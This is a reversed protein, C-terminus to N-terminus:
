QQNRAFWERLLEQRQTPATAPRNDKPDEGHEVSWGSWERFAHYTWDWGRAEFIDIVDRLYRYASQNPAWRIASFEGMYIHVNYREQFDVVPQLASELQAKGWFRGGVEGPYEYSAGKSHVGQHTFAHPVYMHASYVVNSVTLPRLEKLGEPGGWPAAEVILTRQPDIERIARATREALDQWDDCDDAVDDEVPENVLDYGWIPKAARYRTAIHRWLEVFKDQCQRDTFLRHDSGVYGGATAKGGPPSHLDVVVRLGFRECLPLAADLKKLEGQVWQDYSALDDPQGAQGHRILQWRILNAKWEQGLVRLGEADINPSIMVGRLRPLDHGRYRPGAVPLPGEGRPLRTVVLKLDDFWVRGTVQELGLVLVLNTADSPIRATFTASRWDFSGTELPAQPYERGAPGEIILMFKIGNWSNPRASVEEARLTATGRLTCGRLGAVPLTRSIVAGRVPAQAQIAVSQGKAGTALTGPGHWGTLSEANDFGTEFWVQGRSAPGPQQAAAAGSVFLLWTCAVLSLTKCRTGWRGCVPSDAFCRSM